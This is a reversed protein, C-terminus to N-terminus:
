DDDHNHHGSGYQNGAAGHDDGHRKDKKDKKDKQHDDSQHQDGGKNSMGSVYASLSQLTSDSIVDKGYAPMSDDGKRVVETVDGGEGAIGEGYQTGAGSAGHCGACYQQYAAKGATTDGAFAFVSVTLLLVFGLCLAVTIRFSNSM